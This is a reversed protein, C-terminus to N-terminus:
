TPPKPVNSSDIGSAYLILADGLGQYLTNTKALYASLVPPIDVINEGNQIWTIIQEVDSVIAAWVQDFTGLRARINVVDTTALTALQAQAATIIKVEKELRAIESQKDNIASQDDSKKKLYAILVGLETLVAALGVLLIFPAFEPFAMAAVGGALVTCGISIAM